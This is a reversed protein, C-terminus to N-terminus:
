RPPGSRWANKQTAPKRVQVQMGPRKYNFYEKGHSM